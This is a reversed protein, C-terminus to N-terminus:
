GPVIKPLYPVDDPWLRQADRASFFWRGARKEARINDRRRASHLRDLPIGHEVEFWNGPMMLPDPDDPHHVVGFREELLERRREWLSAVADEFTEHYYHHDPLLFSRVGELDRLMSTTSKAGRMPAKAKAVKVAEDTLPIAEAARGSFLADIAHHAERRQERTALRDAQAHQRSKEDSLFASKQLVWSVLIRTGPPHKGIRQDNLPASRRRPPGGSRQETWVAVRANDQTVVDAGHPIPATKTPQVARGTSPGPPAADLLDAVRKKLRAADRWAPLASGLLKDLIAGLDDPKSDGELEAAEIEVTPLPERQRTTRAKRLKEVLQPKSRLGGVKIDERQAVERLEDAMMRDLGDRLDDDRRPPRPTTKRDRQKAM